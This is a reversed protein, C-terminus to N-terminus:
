KCERFCRTSAFSLCRSVHAVHAPREKNPEKIFAERFTGCRSYYCKRKEERRRM